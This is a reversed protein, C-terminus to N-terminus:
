PHTKITASHETRLSKDIQLEDIFVHRLYVLVCRTGTNTVFVVIVHSCVYAYLACMITFIIVYCLM